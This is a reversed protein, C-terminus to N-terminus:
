EEYHWRYDAESKKTKRIRQRKKPHKECLVDYDQESTILNNLLDMYGLARLIKILNSLQISEGKELNEVTGKSVGSLEALEAQTYEKQLRANRLWEAIESLVQFDNLDNSIIM